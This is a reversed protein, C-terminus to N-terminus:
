NIKRSKIEERIDAAKEYAEAEEALRLAERLESVTMKQVEKSLLNDKSKESIAGFLSKLVESLDSSTRFNHFRNMSEKIRKERILNVCNELERNDEYSFFYECSIPKISLLVKIKSPIKGGFLEHWSKLKGSKIEESMIEDYTKGFGELDTLFEVVLSYRKVLEVVLRYAIFALVGLGFLEILNVEM